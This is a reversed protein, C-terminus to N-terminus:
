TYMCRIDLEVLSCGAALAEGIAAMGENGIRNEANFGVLWDVLWGVFDSIFMEDLVVCCSILFLFISRLILRRLSPNLGILRGIAVGGVSGIM